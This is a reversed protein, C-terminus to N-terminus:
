MPNCGRKSSELCSEMEQTEFILGWQSSFGIMRGQHLLFASTDGCLLHGGAHNLLDTLIDITHTMVPHNASQSFLTQNSFSPFIAPFVGFMARSEMNKEGIFHCTV